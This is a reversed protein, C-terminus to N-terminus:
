KHEMGVESRLAYSTAPMAPGPTDQDRIVQRGDVGSMVSMNELM